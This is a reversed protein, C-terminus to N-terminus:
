AATLGVRELEALELATLARRGDPRAVAATAGPRPEDGDGAFVDEFAACSEIIQRLPQIAAFAPKAWARSAITPTWMAYASATIFLKAKEAAGALVAAAIRVDELSCAM